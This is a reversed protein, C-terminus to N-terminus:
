QGYTKRIPYGVWFDQSTTLAKGPRQRHWMGEPSPPPWFIKCRCMACRFWTGILDTAAQEQAYRHWCDHHFFHRCPLLDISDQKKDFDELCIACRDGQKIYETAKPPSLHHALSRAEMASIEGNYPLWRPQEATRQACFFDVVWPLQSDDAEEPM